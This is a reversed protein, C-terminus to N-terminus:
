WTDSSWALRKWINTSGDYTGTAYYIYISDFAIDGSTDGDVGVSSLPTYTQIIAIRDGRVTLDQAADVDQVFIDQFRLSSSGINYSQDTDPVISSDLRGAITVTDASSDGLDVNGNFTATGSVTVTATTISTTNTISNVTLAGGITAAGDITITGDLNSNGDVQLTAGRIGGTAVTNGRFLSDGSVEVKGNGNPDLIINLNTEDTTITNGTLKLDSPIDGGIENYLEVFNSNVKVFAGRLTDGTGDDQNTGVNITQRSM